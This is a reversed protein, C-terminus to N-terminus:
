FMNKWKKIFTKFKRTKFAEYREISINQHVLDRFLYINPEREKIRRSFIFQKAMILLTNLLDCEHNCFSITELDLQIETNTSSEYWAIFKTWFQQTVHCQYFLHEMTELEVTCYLCRPSDVLKWSHLRKACFIIRHLYRFQFDRLKTSKVLKYLRAFYELFLSYIISINLKEEWKNALKRLLEKDFVIKQYISATNKEQLNEFPFVHDDLIFRVARVERVWWKPISQLLAYYDLFSISDAGYINQVELYTM